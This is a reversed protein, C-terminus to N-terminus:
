KWFINEWLTAGASNVAYCKKQSRSKSRMSHLVFIWVNGLRTYVNKQRKWRNKGRIPAKLMTSCKKFFLSGIFFFFLSSFWDAEVCQEANTNSLLFILSGGGGLFLLFKFGGFIYCGFASKRVHTFYSVIRYICHVCNSSPATRYLLLSVHYMIYTCLVSQFPHKTHFFKYLAHLLVIAIIETIVQLTYPKYQTVV